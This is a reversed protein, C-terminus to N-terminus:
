WEHDRTAILPKDGSAVVYGNHQASLYWAPIGAIRTATALDELVRRVEDPKKESILDDRTFQNITVMGNWYQKMAKFADTGPVYGGELLVQDGVKGNFTIQTSTGNKKYRGDSTIACSQTFGPVHLPADINQVREYSGTAACQNEFFSELIKKPNHLLVYYNDAITEDPTHHLTRLYDDLSMTQLPKKQRM